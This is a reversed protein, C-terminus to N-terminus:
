PISLYREFSNQNCFHAFKSLGLKLVWSFKRFCYMKQTKETWQKSKRNGSRTGSKGHEVKETNWKKRTGSKGSKGHESESKGSTYCWLIKKFIKSLAGFDGFYGIRFCVIHNRFCARSSLLDNNSSVKPILGTLFAMKPLSKKPERHFDITNNPPAPLPLFFVYSFIKEHHTKVRKKSHKFINGVQFFNEHMITYKKAHKRDISFIRFVSNNQFNEIKNEIRFRGGGGRPIMDSESFFKHL